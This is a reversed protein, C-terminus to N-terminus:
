LGGFRLKGFRSSRHFNGQGLIPSWALADRQGDRFSYFNARWVDGARPPAPSAPNSFASWPLALEIVYRGAEVHVARELGSVWEQHGFRKREDDPGGSVPQNYDDFHTDWVAGAVDVQLEYYDRNDPRDGPKLMVEIGSARAWVHPDVDDRGFPSSPTDDWVVVGVILRQDEWAVRARANVKSSSVPRGTGPAVFMGTSGARQWAPEDMQGDIRFTGNAFKPATLEPLTGSSRDEFPEDFDPARRCGGSLSALTGAAAVLRLVTLRQL